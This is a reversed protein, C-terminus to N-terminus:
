FLVSVSIAFSFNSRLLGCAIDARNTVNVMALRRQRRRDRFIETIELSIILNIARRFLLATTDRDRCSVNLILRFVTVVGM